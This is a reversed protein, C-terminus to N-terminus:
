TAQRRGSPNSTSDLPTGNEIAVEVIVDIDATARPPSALPDTVLLGVAAGGLFVVERVLDGLAAAVLRLRDLNPDPTIM